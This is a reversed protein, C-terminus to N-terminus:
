LRVKLLPRYFMKGFGSMEKKFNFSLSYFSPKYKPLRAFKVSPQFTKSAQYKPLKFMFPIQLTPPKIPKKVQVISPTTITPTTITTVTTTTTTESITIKIPQPTTLKLPQPTILEEKQKLPIELKQLLDLKLPILQPQAQKQKVEEKQIIEQKQEIPLIKLDLKLKPEIKQPTDLKLKEIQPEIQETKQILVQGGKTEMGKFTGSPEPETGSPKLIDSASVIRPERIPEISPETKEGFMLRFGELAKDTRLINETDKDIGFTDKLWVDYDNKLYKFIGELERYRLPKWGESTRVFEIAELRRTTIGRPTNFDLMKEQHSIDKILVARNDKELITYTIKNDIQPETNIQIHKTEQRIEPEIKSVKFPENKDLLYKTQLGYGLTFGLSAESLQLATSVLSTYNKEEIDKKIDYVTKAVLPTSALLLTTQFASHSPIMHSGVVLNQVQSTLAGVSASTIGLGIPSFPAKLVQSKVFEETMKNRMEELMSMEIKRAQEENGTLKSAIYTFGQPTFLINSVVATKGETTRLFEEKRMQEEFQRKELEIQQFSKFDQLLNLPQGKPTKFVAYFGQGEQYFGLFGKQNILNYFNQQTLPLNQIDVKYVDEKPTIEIIGKQKDINVDYQIKGEIDQKTLLRSKIEEAGIPKNEIKVDYFTQGSKVIDTGSLSTKTQPPTISFSNSQSSSSTQTLSNPKTVYSVIEQKIPLSLYITDGSKLASFEKGERNMKMIQGEIAKMDYIYGPEPRLEEHKVEKWANPGVREMIRIVIKNPEIVWEQRMNEQITNVVANSLQPKTQITQNSQVSSPNTQTLSYPNTVPQGTSISYGPSIPEITVKISQPQSVIRKMREEQIKAAEQPNTTGYSKLLFEKAKQEGFRKVYESYSLGVIVPEVTM